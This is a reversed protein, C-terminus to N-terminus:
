KEEKTRAKLLSVPTDSHRSYNIGPAVIRVLTGRAPAPSAQHVIPDFPVVDGITGFPRAGLTSLALLINSEVGLLERAKSVTTGAIEQFTSGLVKIADRSIELEAAKRKSRNEGELFRVYRQTRDLAAENGRIRAELEAIRQESDERVRVVEEEALHHVMGRWESLLSGEDAEVASTDSAAEIMAARSEPASRWHLVWSLAMADFLRSRQESNAIMWEARLLEGISAIRGQDANSALLKSFLMYRDDDNLIAIWRGIPFRHSQALGKRLLQNWITMRVSADLLRSMRALLNETGNPAKASVYLLADCVSESNDADKSSFDAIWAVVDEFELPGLEEMTRATLSVIDEVSVGSPCSLESWRRLTAVLAAQWMEVSNEAPRQRSGILRQEIGSSLRSVVKPVLSEPLRELFTIFDTSPVSRPMLENEDAQAWLIWGGLSTLVPAPGPSERAPQALSPASRAAARLDDLSSTGLDALNITRLRIPERPAYHFQRSDRIAPRIVNWWKNWDKPDIVEATLTAKIESIAATRRNADVLAAALLRLPAEDVWRLTTERDNKLCYALGRSTTEVTGESSEKRVSLTSDPQKSDETTLM